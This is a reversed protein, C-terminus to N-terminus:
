VIGTRRGVCNGCSLEFLFRHRRDNSPCLENGNLQIPTTSWRLFIPGFPIHPWFPAFGYADHIWLAFSLFSSNCHGAFSLPSIRNLNLSRRLDFFARGPFSRFRLFMGIELKCLQKCESAHVTKFEVQLFYNRFSGMNSFVIEFIAKLFNWCLSFTIDKRSLWCNKKTNETILEKTILKHPVKKNQM